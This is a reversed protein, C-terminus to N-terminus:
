AFSHETRRIIEDQVKPSLNVFYASYGGVRVVLDRHKEPHLKAERLINGDLINYQVYTGGDALFRETLAKVKDRNEESALLPAPLKVTLIGALAQEKFDAKLASNLLATPGNRDMGQTASLSGDALVERAERGNPLAGVHKGNGLHWSQGNRNVAYNCGFMNKRSLIVGGTFRAVDRVMLDAEDIDNGYKPADLCMQKIEEGREGAFNSDIAELLEGMTLKKDEFVLKKCAILSDAAPIIGRDKKYCLKYHTMGGSQFDMGKELCSPLLASGFPHRYHQPKMRDVIEDHWLQKSILHEAQIQFAKYLEAFTTFIRPDGTEPGLRKGTMPAIGNHLALDMCLSINIYSTALGSPADGSQIQSCGVSVWNRASELSVGSRVFLDIFHDCNQFQPVGGGVKCNTEIAKRMIWDPIGKHWGIAIHPEPYKALGAMHLILYTLESSADQGKEDTGCLAISPLRGKQVHERWSIEVVWELRACSLLYDSILDGAEEVTLRGQALDRQFYPYLIQDMRGSAAMTHSPSEYNAALRVLIYTQLAERFTRAPNEPVWDCVRAIEELEARWAPDTEEAAMRRAAQSYRHALTIAAECAIIVGQWFHLKDVDNERNDIWRQICRRAENIHSRLGEEIVRKWDACSPGGVMGEFRNTGTEVLDDYWDGMVEQVAQKVKDMFGEGKWFKAAEVLIHFDDETIIGKEVPSGLTTGKGEEILAAFYKAGYQSHPYAGRFYKTQSGVLKEGRFISTPVGEVVKKLLKAQRIDMPENETERWSQIALATHEAAVGPQTTLYLEKLGAARQSLNLQDIKRLLDVNPSM